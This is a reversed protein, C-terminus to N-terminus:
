GVRLMALRDMENRGVVVVSVDMLGCEEVLRWVEQDSGITCADAGLELGDDKDKDKNEDMNGNGSGDVSPIGMGEPQVLTGLSTIANRWPLIELHPALPEQPQVHVHIPELVSVFLSASLNRKEIEPYRKTKPFSCKLNTVQTVSEVLTSADSGSMKAAAIYGLMLMM